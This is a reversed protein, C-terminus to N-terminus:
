SRTVRVQIFKLKWTSSTCYYFGAYAYTLRVSANALDLLHALLELKGKQFLKM